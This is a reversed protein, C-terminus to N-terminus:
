AHAQACELVGIVVGVFMECVLRFGVKRCCVGVDM